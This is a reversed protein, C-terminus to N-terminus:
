HTVPHVLLDGDPVGQHHLQDLVTRRLDLAGDSLRDRPRPLPVPIDAAIRGPPGSMVVVRDALMLAEDVDHTVLVATLSQATVIRELEAQM